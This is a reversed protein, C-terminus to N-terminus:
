IKALSLQACLYRRRNINSPPTKYSVAAVDNM